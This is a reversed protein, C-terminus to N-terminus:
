GSDIVLESGTMFRSEDSSLIYVMHLIRQNVLTRLQTYTKHLADGEEMMPLTMPTFMIGPHESNVHIKDKGYAGKASTYPSTGAIGVLSYNSSINVISGGGAKKEPVVYKMGIVCSNM